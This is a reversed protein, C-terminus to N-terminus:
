LDEVMESEKWKFFNIGVLFFICSLALVYCYGIKTLGGVGTLLYRSYEIIGSMPNFFIFFRWKEPVLSMNYVIPTMWFGLQVMVEWLSLTDRIKVVIISLILGIGLVLLYVAVVLPLFWCAKTTFKIGDVLTFVFFIFLNFIFGIFNSTVSSAVLVIRPLSVKRIMQYNGILGNMGAITGAVFFDWIIIGLLLIVGYHPTSQKLIITFVIYLVGFLGLPKLLSWFYGLYSGYYRLKFNVLTLAIFLRIRYDIRDGLYFKQCNRFDM